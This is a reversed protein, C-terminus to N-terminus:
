IEQVQLLTRLWSRWRPLLGKLVQTFAIKGKWKVRCFIFAACAHHHISIVLLLSYYECLRFLAVTRLKLFKDGDLGVM